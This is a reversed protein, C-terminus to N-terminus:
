DPPLGVFFRDIRKTIFLFSLDRRERMMAWADRRWADAEEIFFDSTFCTFVTGSTKLRYEGNKLKQVPLDFDKTKEVISSDKGYRSDRRYVYCNKCGDSLKHCGHWPNWGEDM